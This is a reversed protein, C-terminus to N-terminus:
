APEMLKGPEATGAGAHPQLAALLARAVEAGAREVPMMPNMALYVDVAARFADYRTAGADRARLYAGVAPWAASM